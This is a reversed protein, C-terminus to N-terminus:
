VAHEGQVFPQQFLLPAEEHWDASQEAHARIMQFFASLKHGSEIRRLFVQRQDPSLELYSQGTEANCAAEFAALGQHYAQRLRSLPGRLQLDIFHVARAQAEGPKEDLPIVQEAIASVLSAEECTLLHTTM